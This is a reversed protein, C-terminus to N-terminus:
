RSPQYTFKLINASGEGAENSIYMDGNPAFTIGEPQRFRTQPLNFVEIVQGKLDTIVLLHNVASIIYLRKQLPHIAAASPSFNKIKSEMNKAIDKVAIRFFPLSDYKLTSMDFRYASTLGTKKDVECHKCIIVVGNSAPDYYASEFERKGKVPADYELSSISDTFVDQILFLSGNSKLVLWDKGTHVIDEYDTNKGFKWNEYPEDQNVDMKFIRGEEDNIAMFQGDKEHHVIGSIEQMSGRVHLKQPLNLDYGKPSAYKGGQGETLGNCSLLTLLLAGFPYLKMSKIQNTFNVCFISYIAKM